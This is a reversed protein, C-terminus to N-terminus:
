NSQQYTDAREKFARTKRITRCDEKAVEHATEEKAGDEDLALRTRIRM